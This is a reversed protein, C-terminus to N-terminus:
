LQEVQEQTLSDYKNQGSNLTVTGVKDGVVEGDRVAIVYPMFIRKEGTDYKKGDDDTIM